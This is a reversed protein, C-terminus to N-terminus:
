GTYCLLGGTSILTQTLESAVDDLNAVSPSNSRIEETELTKYVSDVVAAAVEGDRPTVGDEVLLVDGTMKRELLTQMTKEYSEHLKALDRVAAATNKDECTMESILPGPKRRRSEGPSLPPESAGEDGGGESPFAEQETGGKGATDANVFLEGELSAIKTQLRSLKERLEAEETTQELLDARQSSHFDGGTTQAEYTTEVTRSLQSTTTKDASTASRASSYLAGTCGSTSTSLYKALFSRPDAPQKQLLEILIEKLMKQVDAGRVYALSKQLTARRSDLVKSKCAATNRKSSQAFPSSTSSCTLHVAIDDTLAVSQGLIPEFEEVVAGITVSRKSSSLGAREDDEQPAIATSADADATADVEQADADIESPVPPRETGGEAEKPTVIPQLAPATKSLEDDDDDVVNAVESDEATPTPAAADVHQIDLERKESADTGEGRGTEERPNAEQYPLLQAIPFVKRAVPQLIEVAVHQVQPGGTFVYEAGTRGQRRERGTDLCVIANASVGSLSDVRVRLQSAPADATSSPM